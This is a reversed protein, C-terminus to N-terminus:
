SELNDRRFCVICSIHVVSHHRHRCHREDEDATHYPRMPRPEEFLLLYIHSFNFRLISYSNKLETPHKGIYTNKFLFDFEETKDKDYYNELVSTFLTKGFKRPRLFMIRKDSLDDEFDKKILECVDKIMMNEFKLTEKINCSQYDDFEELIGKWMIHIKQYKTLM